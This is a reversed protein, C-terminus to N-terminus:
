SAPPRGRREGDITRYLDAYRKAPRNWGVDSRMGNEQIRRWAAPSQFAGAARALAAEFADLTAPSFQFGTAVGAALAMENADIITDNLGGVRSVVPVAGYRLACLQTLGCPEFRSPVLLADVGGQILHALAEDYGIAVGIRGPSAAVAARFGAELEADGSGLLVLDAGQALLRPIAGLLLDCGKQWSLRSVIGFLMADPDDALGFRKRLALKNASRAGPHDADFRAPLHPDTAPNWVTEDIGNLIGSLVAARSRLLGGLGMGGEDTQIEAAYTPSVTTIRDALQLGAKLFGVGGFYEVADVSLASSPLGLSPLLGAPFRGQFALNHVTM